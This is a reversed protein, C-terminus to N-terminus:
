GRDGQRNGASQGDARHRNRGVFGACSSTSPMPPRPHGKLKHAYAVAALRRAFGEPRRRRPAGSPGRRDGAGGAAGRCEGGRVLQFLPDLRLSLGAARRNGEGSSCVRRGVEACRHASAAVIKGVVPTDQAAERLELPRQKAGAGTFAPLAGLRAAHAEPPRLLESRVLRPFRDVPGVRSATAVNPSSRAVAFRRFGYRFASRKRPPERRPSDPERYGEAVSSGVSPRKRGSAAQRVSTKTTRCGNHNPREM